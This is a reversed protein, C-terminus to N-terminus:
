IKGQATLEANLSAVYAARRAEDPVAHAAWFALGLSPRPRDSPNPDARHITLSHHALIDGPECAMVQEAALDAEGYDRISQSFGLVGSRGHPRLGRRHSGPIYRVAGNEADVPALPIWFTLGHNPEIMWYHGDQHAATPGGIRPPKNFWQVSDREQNVPCGLLEAALAPLGYRGPLARMWPDHAEMRPLQKLTEADGKTEYFAETGPLGPVIDRIYRATQQQLCALEAPGFFGRLHIFGDREFTSRRDTQPM